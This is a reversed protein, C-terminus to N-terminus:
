KIWAVMAIHFSWWFSVPPHWKHRNVAHIPVDKLVDGTRVFINLNGDSCIKPCGVINLSMNVVDGFDLESLLLVRLASVRKQFESWKVFQNWCTSKWIHRTGTRGYVSFKGICPLLSYIMSKKMSVNSYHGINTEKSEMSIDGHFRVFFHQGTFISM